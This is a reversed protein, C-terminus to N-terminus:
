SCSPVFEYGCKKDGATASEDSRVENTPLQRRIGILLDDVDVLQRIGAVRLIERVDRAVRPIQELVAIDAIALKNIAHQFIVLRFENHVERRFTMDIPANEIAPREHPGVDDARLHQHISAARDANEPM